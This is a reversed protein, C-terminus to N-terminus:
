MRYTDKGDKKFFLVVGFFGGHDTYEVHLRRVGATQFKQLILNLNYPNMQMQLGAPNGAHVPKASRQFMARIASLRSYLGLREAIARLKPHGSPSERFYVFHLVGVGGQTLLQLLRDVILYGRDASIHQLVIFSHILDFPETLASLQDDGKVLRVNPLGLLDCRARARQLMGDSVDVGVVTRCRRALPVVIRGVGCGFDLASEAVFAHDVYERITQFLLSVHSEGSSYFEEISDLTLKDRDFKDHTIVGWYPNEEGIFQWYKDTNNQTGM